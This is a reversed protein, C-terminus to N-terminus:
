AVAISLHGSQWGQVPVEAQRFNIVMLTCDDQPTEAHAFRIVETMIRRCVGEPRGGPGDLLIGVVRADGFEEDSGSAAETIGDSYVVLTDLEGVTVTGASYRADPFLGLVPGAHDLRELHSKGERSLIPAGHGANVYRLTRTAPDFVGWFLTAFKECATRECLMRNIRELAMEHEFATSSRIAGHLVSVLLAAPIGKGSVDGLVIAIKGPEAEFIDYFDGGVHDAAISWAAFDVHASVSQPKPQLDSQVRRALQLENELYKGRFYHPARLGIVAVSILLAISAILGLILNQRLGEFTGAVAKLSITLELM